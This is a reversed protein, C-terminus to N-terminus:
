PLDVTHMRGLVAGARASVYASYPQLGYRKPAPLLVALRAAAAGDLQAADM